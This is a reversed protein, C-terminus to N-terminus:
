SVAEQNRTSHMRAEDLARVSQDRAVKAFGIVDSQRYDVMYGEPSEGRAQLGLTLEDCLRIVRDHNEQGIADIIGSLTENADM